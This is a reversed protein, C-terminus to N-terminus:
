NMVLKMPFYCSGVPRIPEMQEQILIVDHMEGIEKALKVAETRDPAITLVKNEIVRDKLEMVVIHMYMESNKNTYNNPLNM